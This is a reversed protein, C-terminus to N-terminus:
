RATAYTATQARAGAGATWPVHLVKPARADVEALLPAEAAQRSRLLPHRVPLGTLVQNVVWAHPGIGARQLDRELAAAEHV